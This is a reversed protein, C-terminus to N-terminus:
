DITIKTCIDSNNKLINIIRMPHKGNVVFCEINHKLLMTSIYSDVSTFGKLTKVNITNLLKGEPYTTYIGDVDTAIIISHIDLCKAIYASISDSTLEWSHPLEETALVIKSPLIIVINEKNLIKKADYLNDVATIGSIESFYLGILDTSKTALMHAGDENLETKEHLERVVNAFQGGGPVIIIKKGSTNCFDKLKNLLENVSYTLSGGIKIININNNKDNM